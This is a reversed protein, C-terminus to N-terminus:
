KEPKGYYGRYHFYDPSASWTPRLDNLVLGAIKTGTNQLLSMVRLMSDRQTVGAQYVLIVSQLSASMVVSDPVPLVPPADVLVVDYAKEWEKVLAGFIPLSLWESPQITRGGSTIFFLNEAGPSMALNQDLKEGLALDRNDKVAERWALDGILIESLGKERQLGFIKYLSPRRMNAGVLLTRRGAQAFTFALNAITTSKGESPGPSTVLVSRIAEDGARIQLSTRIARYGETAPSRPSSVVILYPARDGKRASGRKGSAGVGLARWFIAASQITDSYKLRGWFGEPKIPIDDAHPSFHPIVGLIPLRFTDEIEVLTRLSTDLNESVFALIIGLMLGLLGGVAALYTKSTTIESGPSPRQVEIIRENKRTLAIRAEERRKTLYSVVDELVGKKQEYDRTLAQTKLETKSVSQIRKSIHEIAKRLAVIDPYEDTYNEEDELARLKLRADTLRAALVKGQDYGVLASADGGIANRFEADLAALSSIANTLSQEIDDYERRANETVLEDHTRIFESIVAACRVRASEPTPGQVTVDILDTKPLRTAKIVGALAAPHVEEDSGRLTAAADEVVRSSKIEHVYNEMPDGSSVLVEDFLDAFTQMRQIRIRSKSEFKQTRRSAWMYTSLVVLITTSVVTFKHKLIVRLYDSFVMERQPM